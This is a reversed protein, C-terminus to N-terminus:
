GRAQLLCWIDVRDEKRTQTRFLPKHKDEDNRTNGGCEEFWLLRAETRLVRESQM